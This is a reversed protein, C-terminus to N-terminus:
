AAGRRPPATSERVVLEASIKSRHPIERKEIAAHLVDMAKMGLAHFDQRVTTLPPLFHRAFPLDDFGVVSMQDPVSIGLETLGHVVGLAMEDNAAFIATYEPMVPLERAFRYGFDASWDGVVVERERMGWSAVRAHFARERGRADLWDLPGSVHLIDRHGLAVLHDVVLHTGLQQDVSLTLFSPDREAKIVLVPVSISIKRLSTMSSSRPAVVCLADIGQDILLAVADQPTMDEEDRLAVSTTTYGNERAALEIGGLTSAPGFEMAGEIMVGIRRSRHTALARAASNPRYNLEDIVELVRQRTSDKIGPYDNLVRSVTM